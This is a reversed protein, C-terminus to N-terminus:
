KSGGRGPAPNTPAGADRCAPSCFCHHADDHFTPQKGPCSKTGGCWEACTTGRGPLTAPEDPVEINTWHTHYEPWDESLPSGVYPPEVVPFKWWLVSGFDEHWDALPRAPTEAAPSGPLTAPTPPIGAPTGMSKITALAAKARIPFAEGAREVWWRIEEHALELARTRTALTSELVKREENVLRLADQGAEIHRDMEADRTALTSRAEDRERTRELAIAKYSERESAVADVRDNGHYIAENAARVDEDCERTLREVDAAAAEAGFDVSDDDDSM